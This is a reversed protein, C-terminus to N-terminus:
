NDNKLEKQIVNHWFDHGEPTVKWIFSARIFDGLGLAKLRGRVYEETEEPEERLRRKIALEEIEKITM